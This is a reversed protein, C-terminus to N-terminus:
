LFHSTKGIHCRVNWAPEISILFLLEFLQLIVIKNLIRMMIHQKSQLKYIRAKSWKVPVRIVAVFQMGVWNQVSEQCNVCSSSPSLKCFLPGWMQLYIELVMHVRFWIVQGVGVEHFGDCTAGLLSNEWSLSLCIKVSLKKMPHQNMYVDRNNSIQQLHSNM